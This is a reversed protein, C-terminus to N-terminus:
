ASRAPQLDVPPGLYSNLMEVLTPFLSEKPLCVVVAEAEVPGYATILIVPIHPAKQRLVRALELGDMGEMRWDTVVADFREQEFVQLAEAASFVPVARYGERRLIECSIRSLLENDDVFLVSKM